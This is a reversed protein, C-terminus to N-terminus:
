AKKVPNKRCFKWLIWWRMWRLMDAGYHNSVIANTDFPTKSATHKSGATLFSGNKKIVTYQKQFVVEHKLIWKKRREMKHVVNPGYSSLAYKPPYCLLIEYHFISFRRCWNFIQFKKDIYLKQLLFKKKHVNSQYFAHLFVFVQLTCLFPTIAKAM